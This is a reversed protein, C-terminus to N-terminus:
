VKHLHLQMDTKLFIKYGQGELHQCLLDYAKTIDGQFNELVVFYDIDKSKVGLLEDRVFGGVKYFKFITPKM